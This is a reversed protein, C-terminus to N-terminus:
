RESSVLMESTEIIPKKIVRLFMIRRPGVSGQSYRAARGIGTEIEPQHEPLPENEAEVPAPNPGNNYRSLEPHPMILLTGTSQSDGTPDAMTTAPQTQKAPSGTTM